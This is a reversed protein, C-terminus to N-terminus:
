NTLVDFYVDVTKRAMSELSFHERYRVSAMMGARQRAGPDGLYTQIRSVWLELSNPPCVFGTQGDVVAEAVGDVDSVVCPLGAAMAELIAFPFGEYISPLVFIDFGCLFSTANHQWGLLHMRDAVGLAAAKEEMSKRLSGDGIWVLHVNPPLKALLSPIFLPNKQPEIRAVCGLVVDQPGCGWLRRVADRDSGARERATPESTGNWVLRLRSRDIGLAALDALGSRAIAILPCGMSRLVQKSVYDRLKGGVSRLGSMTRTVHVTAVVPRKTRQASILLDLGDEINQKNVHIVDAPLDALLRALRGIDRRALLAGLSRLKRDYTNRYDLRVVPGFEALQAALEDMREHDSLVSQVEHGLSTLGGALASLYL